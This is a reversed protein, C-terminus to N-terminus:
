RKRSYHCFGIKSVKEIENTFRDDGLRRGAKQHQETDRAEGEEAAARLRMAVITVCVGAVAHRTNQKEAASEAATQAVVM